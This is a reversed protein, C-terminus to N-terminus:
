KKKKNFEENFKKILVPDKVKRLRINPFDERLAKEIEEVFEDINGEIPNMRNAVIAENLTMQLLFDINPDNLFKEKCKNSCLITTLSANEAFYFDSILYGTPVDKRGCYNCTLEIQNASQIREFVLKEKKVIM